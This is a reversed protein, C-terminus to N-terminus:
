IIPREAGTAARGFFGLKVLPINQAPRKRNPGPEGDQPRPKRYLPRLMFMELVKGLSSAASPSERTSAPQPTLAM